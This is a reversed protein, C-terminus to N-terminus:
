QHRNQCLSILMKKLLWHDSPQFHLHLPSRKVQLLYSTTMTPFAFDTKLIGKLIQVLRDVEREVDLRELYRLTHASVENLVNWEALSVHQLGEDVNLRFYFDPRDERHLQKEMADSQRECDNATGKLLGILNQPLVNQFADPQKLGIVEATGTGLSLLCSIPRGPFLSNAEEVVYKVPNNHEVANFFLPARATAWAAQVITSHHQDATSWSRFLAPGKADGSLLASVFSYIHFPDSTRTSGDRFRSAVCWKPGDENVMNILMPDETSRQSIISVMSENLRPIEEYGGLIWNKPSFINEMLTTYAHIAEDVSMQLRFLMIM